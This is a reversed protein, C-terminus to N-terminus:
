PVLVGQLSHWMTTVDQFRADPEVALARKVWGEIARPLSSRLSFLSPREATCAWRCVELVDGGPPTPLTGGLARFVIVGLSYIDIRHDLQRPNGKWSEPAIYSPTGAVFGERTLTQEDLLKALGFDLLKVQGGLKRDVLFLNSPKLDRHVINRSHAAKLTDVVPDLIKLLRQPKIRAQVNSATQLYDEFDQGRLLEMVLFPLRGDLMGFHHVRVVSTGQLQAMVRAERELRQIYQSELGHDENLLKVAVEERTELDRARYVIGHAGTGVVDLIRYRDQIVTGPTPKPM